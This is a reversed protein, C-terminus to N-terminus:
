VDPGALAYKLRLEQILFDGPTSDFTLYNGTTESKLLNGTTDNALITSVTAGNNFTLRISITRARPFNNGPTLGSANNLVFINDGASLIVNSAIAIPYPSYDLFADISAGFVADHVTVAFEKWEKQRTSDADEHRTQLVAMHPKQLDRSPYTSKVLTGASQGFLFDTNIDNLALTMPCEQPLLLNGKSYGNNLYYYLLSQTGGYQVPWTYLIAYFKQLHVATISQPSATLMPFISKFFEQQSHPQLAAANLTTAYIGETSLIYVVGNSEANAGTLRKGLQLPVFTIDRYDAGYMAYISSAGYVIAGGQVPVFDLAPEQNPLWLINLPNWVTADGNDSIQITGDSNVAWLRNTYVRLKRITKGPISITTFDTLNLIGNKTNDPNPNTCYQKGLFMVPKEIGSIYANAVARATGASVNLPLDNSTDLASTYVNGDGPAFYANYAGGFALALCVGPTAGTIVAADLEFFSSLYGTSFLLVNEMRLLQNRGVAEPLLAQTECGRFDRQRHIQWGDKVSAADDPLIKLALPKM